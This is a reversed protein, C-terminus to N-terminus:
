CRRQCPWVRTLSTVNGDDPLQILLGLCFIYVFSVCLFSPTSITDGIVIDSGVGDRESKSRRTQGSNMRERPFRMRKRHVKM